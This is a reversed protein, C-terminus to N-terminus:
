TLNTTIEGNRLSGVGSRKLIADINEGNKGGIGLISPKDTPRAPHVSRILTTAAAIRVAMRVNSPSHDLQDGLSKLLQGEARASAGNRGVGIRSLLQLAEYPPITQDDQEALRRVLSDIEEPSAELTTLFSGPPPAVTM